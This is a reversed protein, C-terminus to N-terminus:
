SNSFYEIAMAVAGAVALFLMCVFLLMFAKPLTKM